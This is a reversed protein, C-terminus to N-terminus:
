LGEGEELEIYKSLDLCAIRDSSAMNDADKKTDYPGCFGMNNDNYVNVWGRLKRKTPINVLDDGCEHDVYSHGDAMYFDIEEEDPKEKREVAALIAYKPTKIDTALIRAKRGDRTKVPKTPDFKM